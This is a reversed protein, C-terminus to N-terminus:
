ITNKQLVNCVCCNRNVLLNLTGRIGQEANMSIMASSAVAVQVRGM